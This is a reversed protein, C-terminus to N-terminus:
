IPVRKYIMSFPLEPEFTDRDIRIAGALSLMYPQVSYGRTAEREVIELYDAKLEGAYYSGISEMFQEWGGPPVGDYACEFTHKLKIPVTVTGAPSRAVNDPSFVDPHHKLAWATMDVTGKSRGNFTGDARTHYPERAVFPGFMADTYALANLMLPHNDVSPSTTIVPNAGAMVPSPAVGAGAIIPFAAFFMRRNIM